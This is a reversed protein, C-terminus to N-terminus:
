RVWRLASRLAALRSLRPHVVLAAPESPGIGARARVELL